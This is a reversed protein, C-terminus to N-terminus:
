TAPAPRTSAFCDDSGEGHESGARHCCAVRLSPRSNIEGPRALIRDSADQGHSPRRVWNSRRSFSPRRGVAEDHWLNGDGRRFVARASVQGARALIVPRFIRPGTEAYGGSEGTRTSHSLESNPSPVVHTWDPRQLHLCVVRRGAHPHQLQDCHPVASNM